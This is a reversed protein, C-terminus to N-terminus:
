VGEVGLARYCTKQSVDDVGPGRWKGEVGLGESQSWEVM